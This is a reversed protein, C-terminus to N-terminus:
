MKYKKKKVKEKEEVDQFIDAQFCLFLRISLKVQCYFMHIVCNSSFCFSLSAVHRILKSVNLVILQFGKLAVGESSVYCKSVAFCGRSMNKFQFVQFHERYVAFLNSQSEPFVSYCENYSPDCIIQDPSLHSQPCNLVNEELLSHPLDLKTTIILNCSIYQQLTM